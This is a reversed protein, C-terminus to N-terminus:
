LSKCWTEWMKHYCMELNATFRKADCLPSYTMMDRLHERLTQLRTLDKALEVAISIYEDPTKAVLDPLGVNSLLSIGSRSHYATGVLNIVPVGMWMAECTTTAGNFPFTDLGIDVLNYAELHVPSPDWSQLIIREATIERQTFMNIVYHRTAKDYFGKGKLILRSEPLEKLIKAWIGFVEPTVKAFNNFSGFTIHGTSLAPLSGVGPSDRDPLYCLFSEPLRILRETYFKETLGPPDTYGDVIKYDMTSFGTTALYGIWSVQVPATKCAFLLMRNNATHGALDVLIDIGDNRILDAVKEDSIGEINRWQNTYGRLRETVEDAWKLPVDSYCFVEVGEKNHNALVPELFYSVSHRRLDPSVYGIRIRHDITCADAHESIAPQMSQEFRKAFKMHESLIDQPEYRANYNMTMLLVEHVLWDDPNRQMAQRYCREAELAKGQYTFCNGLNRLAGSSDPNIRLSIHYHEVAAQLQGQEMLAYGLSFHADAYDPTLKVANQYCVIAKNLVGKEKFAMGLNYFIESDNPNLRLAKEYCTIAEDFLGKVQLANGLNYLTDDQDPDLELAKQFCDIAEDYKEKEKFINGLNNYSAVHNPTIQLCNQYCDRAEDLFNSGQFAYANGLVFYADANEPEIQLAKKLYQIASNYYSKKSHILGLLVLGSVHNPNNTLIKKCIEEAEDLDGAHYKEIASEVRETPNM